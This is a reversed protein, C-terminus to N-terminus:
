QYKEFYHNIRQTAWEYKGTEIPYFRLFNKLVQEKTFKMREALCMVDDCHKEKGSLCKMALLYAPSIYEVKLNTFNKFRRDDDCKEENHSFSTRGWVAVDIEEIWNTDLKNEIAINRIIQKLIPKDEIKSTSIIADIDHALDKYKNLVMVTTGYIFLTGQINHKKCESDLKSLLTIIKEENFNQRETLEAKTIEIHIQLKKQLKQFEFKKFVEPLSSNKEYQEIKQIEKNIIKLEKEVDEIHIALALFSITDVNISAILENVKNLTGKLRTSIENLRQHDQLESEIKIKQQTQNKGKENSTQSTSHSRVRPRTATDVVFTFNEPLLSSKESPSNPSSFQIPLIM